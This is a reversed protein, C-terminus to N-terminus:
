RCGRADARHGREPTNDRRPRSHHIRGTVAQFLDQHAARVAEKDNHTAMGYPKGSVSWIGYPIGSRTVLINDRVWRIPQRTTDVM